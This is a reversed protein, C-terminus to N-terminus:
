LHEDLSEKTVQLIRMMDDNIKQFEDITDKLTMTSESVIKRQYKRMVSELAQTLTQHYSLIKYCDDGNKDFAIWKKVIYQYDDTDIFYNNGLEIM